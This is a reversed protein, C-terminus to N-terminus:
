SKPTGFKCRGDTVQNTIEQVCLKIFASEMLGYDRLGDLSRVVAMYTYSYPALVSTLVIRKGHGEPPLTVTIDDSENHFGDESDDNLYM